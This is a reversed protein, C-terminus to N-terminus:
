LWFALHFYQNGQFSVKKQDKRDRMSMTITNLMVYSYAGPRMRARDLDTLQGGAAGDVPSVIGRLGGHVPRPDRDSGAECSSVVRQDKEEAMVAQHTRVHFALGALM